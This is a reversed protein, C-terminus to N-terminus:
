TPARANNREKGNRLEDLIDLVLKRAARIELIPDEPPTDTM